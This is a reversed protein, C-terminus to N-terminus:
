SRLGRAVVDDSERLKSVFSVVDDSLVRLDGKKGAVAAMCLFALKTRLAREWARPGAQTKANGM